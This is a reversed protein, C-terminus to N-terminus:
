GALTMIRKERGGCCVKRTISLNLKVRDIDNEDIEEATDQYRRQIIIM